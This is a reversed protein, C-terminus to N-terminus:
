GQFSMLVVWPAELVQQRGTDGLGVWVAGVQSQAHPGPASPPNCRLLHNWFAPAQSQVLSAQYASLM